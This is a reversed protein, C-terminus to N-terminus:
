GRECKNGPSPVKFRIVRFLYRVGNGMKLDLGVCDDSVCVKGDTVEQIQRVAKDLGITQGNLKEAVLRVPEPIPITAGLLGPHPDYFEKLNV